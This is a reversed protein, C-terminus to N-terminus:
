SNTIAPVESLLLVSAIIAGKRRLKVGFLTMNNRGSPSAGAIVLSADKVSFWFGRCPLAVAYTQRFWRHLSGVVSGATM